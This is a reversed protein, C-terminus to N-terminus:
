RLLTVDGTLTEEDGSSFRVQAKWAYVDQKAPRGRYYGDWGHKVDFTEFVLEGWRDFVQLHYDAVGAYVPFFFNNDYSHPDYVGDTPGSDGPTFANPFRIDGSTIATVPKPLDFTDPCNWMNNAVLQVNFMGAVQYYHIPDLETSTSGDGFDWLYSDANASLNYTFVPQSPVVVEDPQLVFYAQARPHVVISDVKTAVNIGGGPGTATLTVTYTGPTNWTYVPDDATSTGGDGFNWLYSVGLLSTNTFAVTLPVCGEGQGIFSATPLPPGITVQQTATDTCLGSSVVLAITYVGWTGYVHTLPDEVTTAAGDGFDWAYTWSGSPTTNNINVTAAPFQQNFPTAIFSAHPVPHVVIQHTLTDACGYPSSSILTITWTQDVVGTNVYTHSVTTGLLTTGDGMDWLSQSAGSGMDTLDLQLPSCGESPASFMASVPPYVQVQRVMTDRCGFQSTAVLQVNQTQPVTTANIYTHAVDGPAGNLFAGDGFQWNVATAGITLDDFSVPLPTCGAAPTPTFQAIPSPHVRLTLQATDTCGYMSTAVLTPTFVLDSLGQDIYTHHPTQLTSGGGDGFTWLWTGAGTSVNAFGPDFPSCGITDAVFGAHVAPYVEVQSTATNTCGAPSTVTLTIPYTTPGPGMFNFWTHSHVVAATTSTSGDGYNWASSQAGQSQNTLDAVLPHCGQQDSVTFQAVPAPFVTVEDSLTDSCGFANAAILTVPYQVPQTGSNLYTHTPNPGSGTSGDGFDWQYSVAGLVPPFTIGFPACGSDPDATFTFNAAPYVVITQHATDTCGVPATAILTVTNTQLFLTNNVYQHVPSTQTSTAGDGFSWQYSSAGTSHNTFTVDLPACGPIADNTFLAVVAPSVTINMTATDSCGFSTSVILRVTRVSDATGLNIFTHSTNFANDGAGDGFDWVYNVAGTSLNQFAVTLPSCGTTPTSTFAATPKAQVTVPLSGTNACYPTTATLTVTYIGPGAYAHMPAQVSDLTGDGLDWAWQVVPNGPATISQDSFQAVEGVCVNQAGIQVQPPDYVHVPGTAQDSCGDSNTVTLTITYDGVTGYFHPPPDFQTDTTGDGFDWVQSVGNVSTNTPDTTLNICAADVDLTFAATPSPLVTLTVSATDSCGSTAGQINAAYQVHYVGPTNYTHAQDGAGTTQWGSGDDFNWSFHNAGGTTTEDFYATEGACIIAPNLALTVSPPPVINIIVRATDIGCYNSDMMVVEYSGIAPYAITRPFTPPWPNWDIISDQGAGWYDGFNWHEFRQYINGQNLCNRQTTNLFTVQNDPWCLLTASPSIQASDIDWVRIPNFTALSPGGQLTNCTNEASLRVTTECSVTGQQYTHTLTQGLNTWDYVEPPSGDGFDWTFVTNPSTNTSSNIFQVAQPACVQTLGGVPIQISASTSKEMIVTGTIACGSGLDSFTVTYEAVAASYVHNVTQPPVLSAGAQPPSGDGWNITYPGINSPSAVLLTFNTGSCSYWVPTDSPNGWYDYLQPCQASAAPSLLMAWVACTILRGTMTQM